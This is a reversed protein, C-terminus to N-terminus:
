AAPQKTTMSDRLTLLLQRLQERQNDDLNTFLADEAERQARAADALRTSGRDTLHVTHRRRDAPDRRRAVLGDAELPNLLTVLSSADVDMVQGLERQGLPGHDHLLALLHFQRPSLGSATHTARLRRMASQGLLALLLGASSRREELVGSRASTPAISPALETKTPAM